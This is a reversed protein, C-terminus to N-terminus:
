REGVAEKGWDGSSLMWVSRPEVSLRPRAGTHAEFHHRGTASDDILCTVFDAHGTQADSLAEVEFCLDNCTPRGAMGPARCLTCVERGGAPVSDLM